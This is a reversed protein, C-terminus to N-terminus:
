GVYKIIDVDEDDWEMYFVALVFSGTNPDDVYMKWWSFGYLEQMCNLLRIIAQMSLDPEEM